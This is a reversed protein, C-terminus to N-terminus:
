KRSSYRAWMTSLTQGAPTQVIVGTSTVAHGGDVGQPDVALVDGARFALGDEVHRPSRSRCGPGTGGRRSGAVAARAAEAHDLDRARGLEGRGAHRLDDLAHLDGGM